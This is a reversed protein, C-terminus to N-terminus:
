NSKLLVQVHTQPRLLKRLPLLYLKMPTLMLGYKPRTVWKLYLMQRDAVGVRLVYGRQGEGALMYVPQGPGILEGAEAFRKVIRGSVPAIIRAYQQNFNAIRLDSEAVELATRLNQVTELTAASDAYLREFRVLDRKAKEQAQEAKMVQADIETTKLQALLQGKRVTQGEAKYTRDIIGGIKFSLRTESKSGITGGAEIPIPDTSPSIPVIQVPIPADTISLDPEQGPYETKCSLLALSLFSCISLYHFAQKM